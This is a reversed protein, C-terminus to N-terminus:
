QKTTLEHAPLIHEFHIAYPLTVCLLPGLWLGILMVCTAPPLGLWLTDATSPLCHMGMFTLLWIILAACFWYRFPGLRGNNLAGLGLTGTLLLSIAAALVLSANLWLAGLALPASLAILLLLAHGETGSEIPKLRTIASQHQPNHM